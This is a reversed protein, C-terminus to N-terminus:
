YGQAVVVVTKADPLRHVPNRRVEGTREFWRMDANRGSEIWASLRDDTEAPDLRACGVADFGLTRAQGRLADAAASPDLM